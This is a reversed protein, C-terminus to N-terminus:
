LCYTINKHGLPAMEKEFLERTEEDFYEWNDRFVKTVNVALPSDVYIPIDRMRKQRLLKTLLYLIEQARELAFSPIIIKGGRKVTKNVANLLREEATKISAHTRAGYTSEIILYNVDKPIEPDRLYPLDPRGLDVAYAIRTM